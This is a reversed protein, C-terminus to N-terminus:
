YIIKNLLRDLKQSAKITRSDSLGFEKIHINLIRKAKKIRVKYKKSYEISNTLVRNSEKKLDSYELAHLLNNASEKNLYIPSDIIDYNDM